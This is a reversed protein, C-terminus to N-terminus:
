SLFVLCYLSDIYYSCQSFTMLGADQFLAGKITILKQTCTYFISRRKLPCQDNKSYKLCMDRPYCHLVQLSKRMSNRRTPLLFTLPHLSLWILGGIVPITWYWSNTMDFHENGLKSFLVSTKRSFPQKCKNKCRYELTLYTQAYSTLALVDILKNSM